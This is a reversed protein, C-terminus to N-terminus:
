GCFLIGELCNGLLPIIGLDPILQMLVRESHKGVPLKYVETGTDRSDM